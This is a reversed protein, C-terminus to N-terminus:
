NNEIGANTLVGIASKGFKEYVDDYTKHVNKDVKFITSVPTFCNLDSLKDVVGLAKLGMMAAGVTGTDVTDNLAVEIGFVDSLMQVWLPSHAFGGNAYITKVKQTELLIKGISYLNLLIGEMVARAFHPKTHQIDLGLFGGRVASSWIPAREGLLYPYFLLGDSGANIKAAEDFVQNFDSDAFFTEKLWQFVVAGNNSPGGVVYTDEDLIYCFTRMNADLYPVDSCIRAAGSTGITVAMTGPLIAGSGLNALCGDSAGMILPIGASLKFGNNAPLKEIHYPSVAESLHSEDLGIQKLTWDDWKKETINFLGTASAISYDVVFNGTLRYVIYEKIGIFKKATKFIKKENEKLWMLKCLPTMAHIPTGNNRYMKKGERSVRLKEAIEASRNDAWIILNTLQLGDEDMAMISHMATSFCVGLTEGQTKCTESVVRISHCVAKYIDDPNQESWEPQPHLMEYGESHSALIAATKTDFATTKVNTTGIDVGIIFSM